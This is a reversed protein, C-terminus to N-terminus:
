NDLAGEEIWVKILNQNNQSLPDNPTLPMNDGYLNSNNVKQWLISNIANNPIVRKINEDYDANINILEIYSKDAELNLDGFHQEVNINHCDICNEDFIPQIDNVYSVTSIVLLPEIPGQQKTCSFLSFVVVILPIYIKKM